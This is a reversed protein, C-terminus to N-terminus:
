PVQERQARDVARIGAASRERAVAREVSPATSPRAPDPPSTTAPAAASARLALRISTPRRFSGCEAASGSEKSAYRGGTTTSAITVRSASCCATRWTPPDPMGRGGGSTTSRRRGPRHGACRADATANSSRSASIAPTSASRAAGTSFRPQRRRPRVLHSRRRCGHAPGHRGVRTRHDRRDHRVRHRQGPRRPRHARRGHRRAPPPRQETAASHTSASGCSRTPRCRCWRDARPTPTPPATESRCRANGADRRLGHRSRPRSRRAREPTLEGTFVIM